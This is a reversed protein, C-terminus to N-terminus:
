FSFLIENKPWNAAPIKQFAIILLLVNGSDLPYAIPTPDGNDSITGPNGCQREVPSNYWDKIPIYERTKFDLGNSEEITGGQRCLSGGSTETSRPDIAKKTRGSIVNLSINLFDDYSFRWMRLIIPETPAAINKAEGTKPM